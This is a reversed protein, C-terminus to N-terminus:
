DTDAGVCVTDLRKRPAQTQAVLRHPTMGHCGRFAGLLQPWELFPDSTNGHFRCLQGKSGGAHGSGRLTGLCADAESM